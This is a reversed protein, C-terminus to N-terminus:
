PWRDYMTSNAPVSQTLLIRLVERITTSNQVGAISYGAAELRTRINNRRSAPIQGVTTDLLETYDLDRLWANRLKFRRAIRWLLAHRIPMQLNTIDHLPIHAAELRDRIATRKASPIASIPDDASLANGAADEIPIARVRPDAALIAHQADTVDASVLMIGTLATSNSRGDVAMHLVGPIIAEVAPILMGDEARQVIDCVYHRIPM